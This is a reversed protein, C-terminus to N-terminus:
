RRPGEGRHRWPSQSGLVCLGEKGQGKAGAAQLMVQLRGIELQKGRAGPMDCRIGGFGPNVKRRSHERDMVM